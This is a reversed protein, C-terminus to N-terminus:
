CKPKFCEHKREQQVNVCLLVCIVVVSGTIKARLRLNTARFTFFIQKAVGAGGSSSINLPRFTLFTIIINQKWFTGGATTHSLFFSRRNATPPSHYFWQWPIYTTTTSVNYVQVASANDVYTHVVAMDEPAVLISVYM